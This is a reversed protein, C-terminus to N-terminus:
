KGLYRYPSPGRSSSWTVGVSGHIWSKKDAQTSILSKDDRTSWKEVRPQGAIIAGDKKAGESADKDEAANAFGCGVFM